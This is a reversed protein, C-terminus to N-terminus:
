SFSQLLIMAYKNFQKDATLNKQCPLNKLHCQCLPVINDRHHFLVVKQIYNNM